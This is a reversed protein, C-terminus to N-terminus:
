QLALHKGFDGGYEGPSCAACFNHMLTAAARAEHFVFNHVYTVEFNAQSDASPASFAAM